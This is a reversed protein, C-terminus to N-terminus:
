LGLTRVGREGCGLHHAVEHRVTRRVERALRDPDAGFDRLLTDAYIAIRDAYRGGAYCDGHYM